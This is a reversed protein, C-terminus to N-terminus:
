HYKERRNDFAPKTGELVNIAHLNIAPNEISGATYTIRNGDKRDFEAYIVQEADCVVALNPNHTVMIVQRKKKAETLVPVLLSVITENDLNEEPQDLIVPNRGQDVLLYFILLLAGRQGPSLQEIHTDQFLLTYKPELFSLGFIFDYVEVAKKDKRLISTIGYTEKSAERTKQHLKTIFDIVNDPEDFCYQEALQKIIVGGDEGRFEGSNQKVLSFLQNAVVDASMTLMARFQLRYEERVLRNEEILKQVPAFLTERSKRQEILVGMIKKALDIRTQKQAELDQPFQELQRIRANIGELSDPREPTGQLERKQAEWNQRKKLYQQYLLQPENLKKNLEEKDRLFTAKRSADDNKSQSLQTEAARIEDEIDVLKATKLTFTILEDSQLGLDQTDKHTAQKFREYAQELLGIQSRISNISNLEKAQLLEENAYLASNQELNVLAQTIQELREEAEIQEETREDAPKNQHPPENQAHDELQKKKFALQSDLSRRVEPQLQEEISAIKQNIQVLSQRCDNLRNRFVGEQQEILATFDTAGLRIKEDTRSFIVSRLESEFKENKPDATHENCLSEFYGQPLYRVQEYEGTAPDENLSRTTSTQNNWTLTANFGEALKSKRFRDSKLFAFQKYQKTNGLLAIIDALASKGSGKNGIIAVLDANLEIDCGAMWNSNEAASKEIKLSDIFYSKNQEVVELKPPRVGIFSRQAPEKIAQLLGCFTPDAKIWCYRQLDPIFFKDISHADSGHFCPKLTGYDRQIKDAPVGAKQGLYYEWDNPNGSFVFDSNKLLVDRIASFGDIPLGSIGDKGNAVGVVSRQKLWANSNRWKIIDQYSPKFQEIGFKYAAADNLSSDQAKAFRVLDGRECGYPQDKYIFKLNGLARKLEDIDDQNKADVLFHLNLAKGDKTPPQCRFEINPILWISSFRANDSQEKFLKEYGDISMYDTVGIVAIKNELAAKELTDVYKSWEVGVFSSGLQSEPTHVHLDWRRWESGRNFRDAM